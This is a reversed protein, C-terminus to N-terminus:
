EAEFALRVTQPIARTEKHGGVFVLVRLVVGLQIPIQNVEVIGTENVDM